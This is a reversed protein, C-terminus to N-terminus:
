GQIRSLIQEGFAVGAALDVVFVALSQRQQTQRGAKARDHSLQGISWGGPEHDVVPWVSRSPQEGASNGSLGDVVVAQGIPEVPV